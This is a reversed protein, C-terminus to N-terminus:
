KNSLLELSVFVDVDKGVVGMTYFKGGGVKYELRDLLVRGNFGAVEKGKVAPHERIGALALPLTFSYEEGKVTLKGAVDYGDNGVASIKESEFTILPYKGADFFDVSLLHKDRKAINTDISKVKIEFLFRSKELDNPDFKVDVKFDNFHGQVKSFIHDIGFYINSHAKDLEWNRVDSYATQWIFILVTSVLTVIHKKKM